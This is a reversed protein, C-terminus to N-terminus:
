VYNKNSFFRIEFMIKISFFRIEFMTKILRLSFGFQLVYNKNVSYFKWRDLVPRGGRTM